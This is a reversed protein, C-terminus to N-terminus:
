RTTQLVRRSTTWTVFVITVLLLWAPGVMRIGGPYLLNSFSAGLYRGLSMPEVKAIGLFSVTSEALIAAPIRSLFIAAVYTRIAPWVHSGLVHMSGGGLAQAARVFDEQQVSAIRDRLM